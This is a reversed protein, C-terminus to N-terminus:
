FRLWWAVITVDTAHIINAGHRICVGGIQAKNTCGVASCDYTFKKAGHRKCTSGPSVKNVCEDSSCRKRRMAGLQVCVGGKQANNACGESSCHKLKAGDHRKCVGGKVSNNTCGERCCKKKEGHRICVGGKVMINTCWDRSCLKLHERGLQLEDIIPQLLHHHTRAKPLLQPQRRSVKGALLDFDTPRGPPSPRSYGKEKLPLPFWCVSLWNWEIRRGSATNSNMM